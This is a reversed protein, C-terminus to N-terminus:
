KPVQPVLLKMCETALRRIQSPETPPFRMRKAFNSVMERLFTVAPHPSDHNLCYAALDYADQKDVKKQTLKKAFDGVGKRLYDLADIFHESDSILRNEFYIRPLTNLSPEHPLNVRQRTFYHMRRVDPRKEFLKIILNSYPCLNKEYSYVDFAPM